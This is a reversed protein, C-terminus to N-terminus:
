GLQETPMGQVLATEVQSALVPTGTMQVQAPSLTGGIGAQQLFVALEARVNRRIGHTLVFLTFAEDDLPHMNSATQLFTTTSPHDPKSMARMEATFSDPVVARINIGIDLDFTRM